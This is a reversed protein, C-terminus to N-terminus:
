EERAARLQGYRHLWTMSLACMGITYVSKTLEFPRVDIIAPPFPLGQSRSGLTPTSLCPLSWERAVRWDSRLQTMSSCRRFGECAHQKRRDSM